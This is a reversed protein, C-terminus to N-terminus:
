LPEHHGSPRMTRAAILDAVRGVEIAQEGAFLSLADDEATLSSVVHEQGVSSLFGQLHRLDALAARLESRTEGELHHPWDGSLELSMNFLISGLDRLTTNVKPDTFHRLLTERFGEHAEWEAPDIQLIPASTSQERDSM